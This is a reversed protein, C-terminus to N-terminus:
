EVKGNCFQEVHKKLLNIEVTFGISEDIIESCKQMDISNDKLLKHVTPLSETISKSEPSSVYLVSDSYSVVVRDKKLPLFMELFRKNPNQTLRGLISEVTKSSELMKKIDISEVEM